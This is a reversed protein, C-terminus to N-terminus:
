LEAEIEDMSSDFNLAQDPNNRYDKLRNRVEDIHWSPIDLDEQEIGKYKNKLANWEKIPIFVGTTKGKNDSIYQLSM